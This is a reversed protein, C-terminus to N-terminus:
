VHQPAPVRHSHHTSTSVTTGHGAKRSLSSADAIAVQGQAISQQRQPLADHVVTGITEARGPVVEHDIGANRLPEFVVRCRQLPCYGFKLFGAHQPGHGAVGECLTTTLLFGQTLARRPAWLAPVGPVPSDGVARVGHLMRTAAKCDDNLSDHIVVAGARIPRGHARDAATATGFDFEARV